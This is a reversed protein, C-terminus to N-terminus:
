GSKPIKSKLVDIERRILGEALDPRRGPLRRFLRPPFSTLWVAPAVREVLDDAASTAPVQAESTPLPSETAGDKVPM